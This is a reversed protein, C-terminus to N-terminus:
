VFRLKGGLEAGQSSLLSPCAVQSKFATKETRIHPYRHSLTHLVSLSMSLLHHSQAGEEKDRNGTVASPWVTKTAKCFWKSSKWCPSKFCCIEALQGNDLYGLILRHTATAIPEIAWIDRLPLLQVCIHEDTHTPM